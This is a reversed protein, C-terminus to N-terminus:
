CSARTPDHTHRCGGLFRAPGVLGCGRVPFPCLHGGPSQPHRPDCVHQTLLHAPRCGRAVRSPPVPYLTAPLLCSSGVAPRLVWHPEAEWSLGSPGAGAAPCWVSLTDQMHPQPHLSGGGRQPLLSDKCASCAGLKRCLAAAPLRQGRQTWRQYSQPGQAHGQPGVALLSKNRARGKRDVTWQPGGGTSHESGWEM